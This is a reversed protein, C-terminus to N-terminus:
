EIREEVLYVSNGKAALYHLSDPSDFIIKAGKVIVDYRKGEERDVVVVWKNGAKASYAVRKSDPSFIPSGEVIGHYPKERKGDVVVFWKGGEQAAYAVRKNDPSVTFSEKMFSSPDIQAVLTESVVRNLSKEQAWVVIAICVLFAALCLAIVKKSM